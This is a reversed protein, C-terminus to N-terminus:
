KCVASSVNRVSSIYLKSGIRVVESTKVLKNIANFYEQEDELSGRMTDVCDNQDIGPHQAVYERILRSLTKGM